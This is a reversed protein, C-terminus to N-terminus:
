RYEETDPADSWDAAARHCGTMDCPNRRNASTRPRGDPRMPLTAPREIVTREIM